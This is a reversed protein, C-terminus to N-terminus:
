RALSWDRTGRRARRRRRGRQFLTASLVIAMGTLVPMEWDWDVSAHGFWVVFAAVVAAAEAPRIAGKGALTRRAAAGVVGLFALLLVM